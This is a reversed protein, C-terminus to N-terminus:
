KIVKRDNSRGAHFAKAEYLSEEGAIPQLAWHKEAAFSVFDPESIKFDAVLMGSMNTNRYVTIDSATRPLGEYRALGTQFSSHDGFMIWGVLVTGLLVSAIFIAVIYKM